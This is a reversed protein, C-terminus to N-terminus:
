CGLEVGSQRNCHEALYARVTSRLGEMLAVVPEYGLDRRAKSIDAISCRVDGPRTPAYVPQAQQGLLENLCGILELLTTTRGMGVNYIEGVASPAEAAGIMAQVANAVFTFDRSQLGDGYVLPANGAAMAQIFRPIVASYPSTASQRPGFINFFRLCVTALGRVRTFCQCYHEGALKAVAYPSMPCIPADESVASHCRGGYASSSGAYIVRQVCAARAADLIMLTGTACVAHTVACNEVSRQVSPLAALHFVWNMGKMANALLTGDLISGQVFEIQTAVHRLNEINGTTLDDLVRVQHGAEVLADTLHSGIFGAGGTVLCLAM